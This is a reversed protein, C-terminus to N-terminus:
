PQIEPKSLSLELMFVSGKGPSSKVNIDGDMKRALARSLSLGLGAGQFPKTVGSDVQQFPAFISEWKDEAIGIGTDEVEFRLRYAFQTKALLEGRLLISGQKTFKEANELLGILMRKFRVEDGVVADPIDDPLSVSFSLGKERIPDEMRMAAEYVAASLHFPRHILLLTGKELNSADLMSGLIVMMADGSKKLLEMMERQEPKLDSELLMETIGIIGNMPTRVEHDVNILFESKARNAAEAEDRAWELERTRKKVLEELDLNLIEQAQERERFASLLKSALSLANSLVFIGVGVGSLEWSDLVESHYLIESALFFLLAFFGFLYLLAGPRRNRVAKALVYFSAASMLVFAIYSPGILHSYINSGTLLTALVFVSAISYGIKLLTRGADIPFVSYLFHLGLPMGIFWTIFEARLYIEPGVPFHEPFLRVGTSYLRVCVVISFCGLVLASPDKKYFVSVFIHFLGLFLLGGILLSELDRRDEYYKQVCAPEGFIPPKWLGGKRYYYNSIEFDLNAKKEWPPLVVYSTLLALADPSPDGVRGVETLVKGNFLIRYNTGQDFSVLHLNEVRGGSTLELRYLAKGYAPLIQGQWVEGTWSGPTTQLSFVAPDGPLERSPREGLWAFKWKGTLRFCDGRHSSKAQDWHLVGDVVIGGKPFPRCSVILLLALVFSFSHKPKRSM